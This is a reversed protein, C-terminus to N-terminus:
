RTQRKCKDEARQTDFKKECCAREASRPSKADCKAVKSQDIAGAPAAAMAIAVMATAAVLGIKRRLGIVQAEM